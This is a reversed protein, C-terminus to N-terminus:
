AIGLLLRAVETTEKQELRRVQEQTKKNCVKKFKKIARQVGAVDATRVYDGRNQAKEDLSDIKKKLLGTTTKGLAAAVATAAEQATDFYGLHRQVGKDKLKAQWRGWGDKGKYVYKFGSAANPSMLLMKQCHVSAPVRRRWTGLNVRSKNLIKSLM